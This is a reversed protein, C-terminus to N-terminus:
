RDHGGVGLSCVQRDLFRLFNGAWQRWILKTWTVIHERLETIEAEVFVHGASSQLFTIRELGFIWWRQDHGQCLFQVM